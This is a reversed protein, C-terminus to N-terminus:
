NPLSIDDLDDLSLFVEDLCSLESGDDHFSSQSGGSSEYVRCIVWKNSESRPQGRKTRRSGGSSTAALGADLLQFEHMLWNTKISEPAEGLYYRYTKKVGVDMYNSTITEDASATHWYGNGTAKNQSRQTFFYWNLDGGQLAKGNLDWPDCRRVDVTPIIDPHCPLLAAKRRLFHVVLEEDSPFFRFGPPLNSGEGM